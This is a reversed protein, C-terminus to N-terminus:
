LGVHVNLLTGERILASTPVEIRLGTASIDETRGGFYRGLTPEFVKVPRHQRIRLGRRRETAVNGEGRNDPSILLMTAGMSPLGNGDATTIPVGPARTPIIGRAGSGGPLSGRAARYRRHFRPVGEM